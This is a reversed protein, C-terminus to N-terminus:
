VSCEKIFVYKHVSHKNYSIFFIIHGYGDKADKASKRAEEGEKQQHIVSFLFLVLLGLGRLKEGSCGLRREENMYKYLVNICM